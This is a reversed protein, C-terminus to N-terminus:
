RRHSRYSHGKLRIEGGLIAVGILAAGALIFVTWSGTVLGLFGAVVFIGITHAENLRQRAGM